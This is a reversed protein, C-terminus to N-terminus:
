KTGGGLAQYLTVYGQALQLWDDLAASQASLLQQKAIIVELYNADGNLMLKRAYKEAKAMSQIQLTRGASKDKAAYCARLANNVEIGADILKQQFQASAQDLKSQAIKSNARLQGQAFIPQLLSAMATKIVNGDFAATASINVSPYFQSKAYNVNYFCAELNREAARVDPRNELLLMSAGVSFDDSFEMNELTTRVIHQPEQCLLACIANEVDGIAKDVDILAAELDYYQGRTQEVAVGNSMGSSKLSEVVRLQEDWSQKFAVVLTKRADLYVLQYYLASVHAVVGTQVAQYVDLAMNYNAKSIRERNLKKGFLDIEWDLAVPLMYSWGASQNINYGYQPNVAVGPAFSMRDAKLANKAQTISSRAVNIDTNRVVATDILAQLFADTFIERYSFTGMSVGTTDIVAGYLNDTKISEPREYKGFVGCGALLVTLISLSLIKRM